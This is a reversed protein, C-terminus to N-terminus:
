AGINSRPSRAATRIRHRGQFARDASGGAPRERGSPRSLCARLSGHHRGKRDSATRRPARRARLFARRFECISPPSVPLRIARVRGARDGAKREAGPRFMRFRAKYPSRRPVCSFYRFLCASGAFFHTVFLPLEADTTIRQAGHRLNVNGFAAFPCLRSSPM